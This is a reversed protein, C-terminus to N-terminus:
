FSCNLQASIAAKEVGQAESEAKALRALYLSWQSPSLKDSHKLQPRKM